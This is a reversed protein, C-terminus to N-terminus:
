ANLARLEDLMARKEQEIVKTDVGIYEAMFADRTQQGLLIMSFDGGSRGLGPVDKFHRALHTRKEYSLWELFEHIIETEHNRATLKAHEPYKIDTM